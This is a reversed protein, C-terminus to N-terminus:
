AGDEFRVDVVGPVTFAVRTLFPPVDDPGSGSWHVVGRDVRVSWSGLTSPLEDLLDDLDSAIDADTRVLVRLVDRRSVIGALRAGEVVPISRISREIMTAAVDAVDADNPVAVVDRTMVQEVRSPVDGVEEAVHRLHRRPDEHLEIHMIDAESVMGVLTGTSDVVPAASVDRDVLLRAADKLPTDPGVVTVPSSMIEEVRM